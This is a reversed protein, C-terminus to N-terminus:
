AASGITLAAVILTLSRFRAAMAHPQGDNGAPTQGQLDM